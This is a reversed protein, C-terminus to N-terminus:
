PKTFRAYYENSNKGAIAAVEEEALEAYYARFSLLEDMPMYQVRMDGVAVSLQAQTARGAIVDDILDVIKQKATRADGSALSPLIEFTGSEVILDDEDVIVYRYLGPIYATAAPFTIYGDAEEIELAVGKSNAKLTYDDSTAIRTKVGTQIYKPVM